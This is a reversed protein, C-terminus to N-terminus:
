RALELVKAFLDISRHVVPERALEQLRQGMWGMTAPPIVRDTAPGYRVPDILLRESTHRRHVAIIADDGLIQVRGVCGRLDVSRAVYALRCATSGGRSAWWLM